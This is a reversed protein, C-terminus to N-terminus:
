MAHKSSATAGELFFEVIDYYSAKMPLYVFVWLPKFYCKELKQTYESETPSPYPRFNKMELLSVPSASSALGHVVTEM